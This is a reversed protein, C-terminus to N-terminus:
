AISKIHQLFHFNTKKFVCTFRKLEEAATEPLAGVAFESGRREVFIQVMESISWVPTGVSSM